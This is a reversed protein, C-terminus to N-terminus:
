KKIADAAAKAEEELIKVNHYSVANLFGNLTLYSATYTGIGFGNYLGKVTRGLHKVYNVSAEGLLEIAEHEPIVDASGILIARDSFLIEAELKNLKNMQEARM